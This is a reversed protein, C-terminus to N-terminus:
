SCDGQTVRVSHFTVLACLIRYYAHKWLLHSELVPSYNENNKTWSQTLVVFTMMFNM